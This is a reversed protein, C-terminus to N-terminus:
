TKLHIVVHFFSRLKPAAYIKTANQWPCPTPKRELIVPQHNWGGQFINTVHSSWGLFIPVLVHELRGVLHHHLRAIRQVRQFGVERIRVLEKRQTKTCRRHICDLPIWRCLFGRQTTRSKSSNNSLPSDNKKVSWKGGDKGSLSSLVFVNAVVSWIM